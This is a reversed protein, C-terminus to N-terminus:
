FTYSKNNKAIIYMNQNKNEVQLAMRVFSHRKILFIIICIHSYYHQGLKICSKKKIFLLIFFNWENKIFIFVSNIIEDFMWENKLEVICNTPIKKYHFILNLFHM